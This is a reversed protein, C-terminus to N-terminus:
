KLQIRPMEDQDGSRIENEENLLYLLFYKNKFKQSSAAVRSIQHNNSFINKEWILRSCGV